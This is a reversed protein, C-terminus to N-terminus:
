RAPRPPRLGPRLVPGEHSRQRHPSNDVGVRTADTVAKALQADRDAIDQMLSDIRSRLKGAEDSVQALKATATELEGDKRSLESASQQEKIRLQSVATESNRKYDDILNVFTVTAASLILSLVVLLGVFIKTLVSV